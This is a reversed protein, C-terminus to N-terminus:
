EKDTYRVVEIKITGDEGGGEVFKKDAFLKSTLDRLMDKEGKLCHYAFADRASGFHAVKQVENIIPNGDEDQGAFKTITEYNISLDEMTVKGEWLQVLWYEDALRISRDKRIDAALAARRKRLARQAQIRKSVAM